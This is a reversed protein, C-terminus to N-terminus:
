PTQGTSAGTSSYFPPFILAHLHSYLLFLPYLFYSLTLQKGIYSNMLNIGSTISSAEITYIISPSQESTGNESISSPSTYQFTMRFNNNDSADIGMAVVVALNAINLTAYSSSFALLLIIIIIIIFLKNLFNYM